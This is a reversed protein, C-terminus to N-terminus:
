QAGIGQWGGGLAKILLASASYRRGLLQLATRQASYAAAQAIIVSSYDATGAKYQDLALRLADQAAAVAEDQVKAEDALLRLAVLNDEVEQLGGLVTQRYQAVSADYNAIAEKSRADRLGGDFLTQALSAGLSWVRSPTDFWDSVRSSQFGGSASLSFNPLFAARAVGIEANAAAAKREAAAIDPRRELLTSPVSVPVDPLSAGLAAKDLNFAAPPQGVLIPIAQEIQARTVGFDILQAEASKLQTQAQAVDARTVIGAAFQNQTIQLARNYDDVTRTQLAVTEDTIRLQFYDQVLTAQASLRAAALLAANSQLTANGAEVGRAVGGWLDPEWSADLGLNFGNSIQNRTDSRNASASVGVDPFFGARAEQAAAQAQRYQALALQVDQNSADVQAVLTNLTPDGFVEWWNGRPKDESPEASKWNRAEKFDTPMDIAPRTYDPGLVCGDLSLTAFVLAVARAITRRRLRDKM